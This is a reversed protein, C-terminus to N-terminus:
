AQDSDNPPGKLLGKIDMLQTIQKRADIIQNTLLKNEEREEDRERRLRKAEREKDELRIQLKMITGDKELSERIVQKREQIAEEQDDKLRGLEDNLRKLDQIRMENSYELYERRRGFGFVWMVFKILLPSGIATIIIEHWGVDM